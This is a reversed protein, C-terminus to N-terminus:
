ILGATELRAASGLTLAGSLHAALTPPAERYTFWGPDAGWHAGIRGRGDRVAWVAEAQVVIDRAIDVLTPDALVLDTAYRALIGRFLQPDAGVGDSLEDRWLGSAALEDASGDAPLAMAQGVEACGARLAATGARVVGAARALLMQGAPSDAMGALVIDLGAVTGVNYSWLRGEPVLVGDRPRCGDWVIGSPDVLTTHLWDAAARSASVRRPDGAVQSAGALLMAAPATAAVNRFEDGVRWRFGGLQAEWGSAVADALTLPLSADSLGVAHARLTALGMWALDDYYPNATLDGRNRGIIGQILRRARAGAGPDRAEHGDLLVELAHAQWWYHWSGWPLLAALRGRTQANARFLCTREDWYQDVLVTRSERARQQWRM